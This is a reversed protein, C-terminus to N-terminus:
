QLFPKYSSSVRSHHPESMMALRQFSHTLDFSGSFYMEPTRLVSEVMNRYVTNFELQKASLFLLSRTYPFLEASTLKWITQGQIEGVRERGTVVVLYWGGILHIRGLIGFVIRVDATGNPPLNSSNQFITEQTVRDIVLVQSVEADLPEIFIRENTIHLHYTEYVREALPAAM